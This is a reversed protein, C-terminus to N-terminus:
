SLFLICYLVQAAPPEPAKQSQFNLIRRGRIVGSSFDTRDLWVPKEAM